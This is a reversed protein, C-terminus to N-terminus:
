VDKNVLKGIFPCLGLVGAIGILIFTTVPTPMFLLCTLCFACGFYALCSYLPSLDSKHKAISLIGGVLSIGGLLSLLTIWYAYPAISTQRFVFTFIVGGILALAQGGGAKAQKKGGFVARLILATVGYCLLVVPLILAKLLDKYSFACALAIGGTLVATLPIMDALTARADKLTHLTFLALIFGIVLPARVRLLGTIGDAFGGIIAWVAFVAYILAFGLAFLTNKNFYVDKVYKIVPNPKKIKVRVKFDDNEPHLAGEKKKKDYDYVFIQPRKVIGGSSNAVGAKVLQAVSYKKKKDHTVIAGIIECEGWIGGATQDSVLKIKGGFAHECAAEVKARIEPSDTKAYSETLIEQIEAKLIKIEGKCKSILTEISSKKANLQYIQLDIESGVRSGNKKRLTAIEATLVSCEATKERVVDDLFDKRKIKQIAQSFLQKM